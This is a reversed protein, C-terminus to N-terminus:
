SIFMPQEKKLSIDMAMDMINLMIYLKMHNLNIGTLSARMLLRTPINVTLFLLRPM